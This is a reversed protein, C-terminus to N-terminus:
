PAARATSFESAMADLGGLFRDFDIPKTWYDDFGQARAGRIDDPMANASLAILRCGATRPDARLQAAVERGDMDPLHLDLLVVDPRLAVAASLGSAGDIASHLVIGPRMAVLEQVLMLNVPNDEICLLTLAAPPGPDAREALPLRVLLGDDAPDIHRWEVQAGLRGLAQRVLDLGVLPDGHTAQGDDVAPTDFLLERQEASLRPGGDHLELRVWGPELAAALTVHGGRENRRIAHAALHRLAQGLLRRDTHVQVDPLTAPFRLEVGRLRALPEIAERLPATIAALPVPARVPPESEADLVALEFVDDIMALLETGAADIRALRERQRASLPESPDQAMVQTFGLVASLPTRLRHSMLAMFASKERSARATREAERQLAEHRIQETVELHMGMAVRHGDREHRRTWARVWREVGDDGCVPVTMLTEPAWAGIDAELVRRVEERAQPQVYAEIWEAMTPPLRAPDRGYLRYMQADWLVADGEADREWFGVGMGQAVLRTREALSAARERDADRGSLDMSVGLLTTARGTEDRLALRRTLLMRWRGDVARYRAAVDVVQGNEIAQEAARIVAARDEPHISERISELPVGAPDPGMGMVDFGIANFRARRAALDISWVSVGSLELARQLFDRSREEEQLRRGASSDDIMVGVLLGPGGAPDPHVEYLSHMLRERGDPRIFRFHREGREPRARMAQFHADLGPRDETHVHRLFTPWDPAGFAPDFGTMEFLGPDWRAVDRALDRTFLGIRGFARLLELRDFSGPPDHEDHPSM